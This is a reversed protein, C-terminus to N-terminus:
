AASQSPERLLSIAFFGDTGHRLPTLRLSGDDSVDTRSRLQSFDPHAALFAAIREENEEALLSCTAYILRGGPKVLRSAQALIRDQLGQLRPLTDERLQWRAEPQRRWAGSGTCPADVLVCDIRAAMSALWPDADGQLAHMQINHARARDLRPKLRALRKADNDLAYIQGKGAMSSALALAKGGAGACFDVIQEGPAPACLAAIAQSGEDQVEVHGQLYLWHNRLDVREQLRVATPCIAGPAAAIGDEALVEIVRDRNSKLLNVRLDVPARENMTALEQETEAGLAVEFRPYIWEPCNVRVWAPPQEAHTRVTELLAQEAEDLVVPGHGEGSFLPLPNTGARLLHILVAQRPTLHPGAHWRGYSYDRLVDFLLEAVAARDRSGAYRRQRFYQRLARDAAQTGTLLLSLVEITAQVRAAPTM